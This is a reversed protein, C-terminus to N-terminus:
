YSSTDTYMDLSLAGSGYTADTINMVQNTDFTATIQSGFLDLKVVHFNTGIASIAMNTLVTFNNYSAFRILKFQLAGGASNEPYVWAAYHSGSNTDMRGGIGGGFAGVQFRIRAQVTFNTFSNTTTYAYGYGASANPGGLMVGNTVSWAGLYGTWYRLSGPDGTRTFDDFFLQGHALPLACLAWLLAVLCKKMM